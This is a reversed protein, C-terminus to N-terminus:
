QKTVTFTGSDAFTCNFTVYTGHMSSANTLAGTFNRPCVGRSTPQSPTLSFAVSSENVRGSLTGSYADANFNLFSTVWTGVLDQEMGVGPPLLVMGMQSLTLSITGTNSLTSTITGSWNGGLNPTPQTPQTEGGCATLLLLGFLLRNM